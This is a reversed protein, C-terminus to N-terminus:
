PKASRREDGRRESLMAELERKEFLYASGCNHCLTEVPWPGKEVLDELLEVSSFRLFSGFRERACPCDFAVAAEGLIEPFLFHLEKEIYLERGSGEAFRPGLRPLSPLAEEVRALFDEDAGPLAQLYLAGAGLVKASPAGVGSDPGERAFEIGVNFATRTQESELYYSALNAAINEGKLEVTGVFPHPKGESFRTVTLAGSGFLGAEDAPPVEGPDIPSVFLRGRVKGGASAEVAFGEAPGSGDVRIAMRDGEKLTTSLLGACLYAKGLLMTELSGLRHNARMSNLMRTGSLLAGRVRGGGLTFITAGDPPLASLFRETDEELPARIM